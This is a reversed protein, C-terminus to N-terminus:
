IRHRNRSPRQLNTHKNTEKEGIQSQSINKVNKIRITQRALEAIALERKM